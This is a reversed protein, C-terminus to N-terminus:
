MFKVLLYARVYEEDNLQSIERHFILKTKNYQITGGDFNKACLENM